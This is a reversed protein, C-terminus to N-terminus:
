PIIAGSSVSQNKRSALTEITAFLGKAVPGSPSPLTGSIKDALGAFYRYCQIVLPLDINYAEFM